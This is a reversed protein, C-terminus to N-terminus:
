LTNPNCKMDTRLIYQKVDKNAMFRIRFFAILKGYTPVTVGSATQRRKNRMYLTVAENDELSRAKDCGRHTLHM